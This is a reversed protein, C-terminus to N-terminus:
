HSTFSLQFGEQKAFEMAVDYLENFSDFSSGVNLLERSTNTNIPENPLTDCEDDSIELDDYINMGEVFIILIITTITTLTTITTSATITTQTQKEKM